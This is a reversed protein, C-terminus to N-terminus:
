RDADESSAPESGSDDPAASQSARARVQTKRKALNSRLESALRERRRQASEAKPNAAQKGDPM